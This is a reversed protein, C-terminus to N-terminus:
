SASRLLGWAVGLAWYVYEPQRMFLLSSVLYSPIVWFVTRAGLMLMRDYREQAVDGSENM